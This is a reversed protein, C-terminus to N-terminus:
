VGRHTAKQRYSIQRIERNKDVKAPAPPGPAPDGAGAMIQCHIGIRWACQPARDAPQELVDDLEHLAALVLQQNRGGMGREDADVVM